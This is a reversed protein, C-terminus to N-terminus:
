AAFRRQYGLGSFEDALEDELAQFFIPDFHQFDEIRRTARVGSEEVLKTREPNTDEAEVNEILRKLRSQNVAEPPDFYGIVKGLVDLPNATLDEYRIVLKEISDDSLVWKHVFRRYHQLKIQVYRQWVEATDPNRRLFLNYGSVTTELFNRVMVLYPVDALKPIGPNAPDTLDFDHNKTFNVAPNTCPFSKCCDGHYDNYFECFRFENGFYRRVIRVTM